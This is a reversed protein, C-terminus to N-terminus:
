QYLYEARWRMDAQRDIDTEFDEEVQGVQTNPVASSIFKIGAAKLFPKVRKVEEFKFNLFTVYESFIDYLDQRDNAFFEKSKKWIM